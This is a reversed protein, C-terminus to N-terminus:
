LALVHDAHHETNIIYKVSGLDRLQDKWGLADTPLYPTDILILGENTVVVSPNCGYFTTEVFINKSIERMQWEGAIDLIPGFKKTPNFKTQILRM